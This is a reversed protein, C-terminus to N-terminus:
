DGGPAKFQILDMNRLVRCREAIIISELKEVAAKLDDNVVAYDYNTIAKLEEEASKIRLNFSEETESGRKKIRNKLEEIDPPLIFIFVADPCNEKVQKAGQIDIELIVDKGAELQEEVFKRPTGYYNNYVRAWELFEGKRIMQEFNERDTFFYNVGHVEGPRPPRTTVSVSLALEPRRQLLLNCLTGKGAGSPGSLVILMGKKPM